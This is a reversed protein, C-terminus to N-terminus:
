NPKNLIENVCNNHFKKRGKIYHSEGSPITKRCKTCIVDKTNTDNMYKIKEVIETKKSINSINNKKASKSLRKVQKKNQIVNNCIQNQKKTM